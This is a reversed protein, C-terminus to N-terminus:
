NYKKLVVENATAAYYMSLKQSFLQLNIIKLRVIGLRKQDRLHRVLEFGRRVIVTHPAFARPCLAKGSLQRPGAPAYSGAPHRDHRM